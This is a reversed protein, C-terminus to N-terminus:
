HGLSRRGKYADKEEIETAPLSLTAKVLEPLYIPPVSGQKLVAQHYQSLNFKEGLAREVQQRLRYHAMRGVFYMSLQVSSQKSRIVKLRAEGESQFADQTLFRLAEEDSMKTCHMKHDLIANAVARLYFKLQSLRLALDGGGYGQDLMMQETYVAWGEVYAGSHVIRRIFSGAKKSYELQVYHGPYAEHITLVQLMHRNYEELFSEKRRADWDSPPPSIAYFSIGSPDLPPASEMYAVANGRKFEPMEEVHCRDPEPLALIDNQRIFDKIRSVTARADVILDEPKGHEHGIAELVQSITKRRGSLDDPPLAVKPFYHSWAQRSLVYMERLVREFETEADRLVQDATVGADLVVELKRAFKAKGIRWEGTAKPLLEQELFKDYDKLANIVPEAASKLADNQPSNGTLDFIGKEYFAIAGRNQRLATEVYQRPPNRLTEKAVAVIRPIQSMRGISNKINAEQPLTSQALLVFVSDSIYENYARPDDEFPKTNEALWIRRNLEQQVIEFDIQSPRALQRYDVAKPLEKLTKRWLEIWKERAPKSIDDLMADFRHDGLGTASTPQLIFLQELYNKFFAELKDDEQGGRATIMAATLLLLAFVRTLALIYGRM